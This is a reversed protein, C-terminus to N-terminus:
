LRWPYSRGLDEFSNKELYIKCGHGADIARKIGVQVFAGIIEM